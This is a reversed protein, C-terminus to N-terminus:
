LDYPKDMDNKYFNKYPFMFLVYYLNKPNVNHHLFKKFEM